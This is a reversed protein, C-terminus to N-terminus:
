TTAQATPGILLAGNEVRAVIERGAMAGTFKVTVSDNSGEFRVTVTGDDNYALKAKDPDLLATGDTSYRSISLPANTEVSDNGDGEVMWLTAVNGSTSDVKIKDNGAGGSALVERGTLNLVDNGEGGGGRVRRGTLNLVDDGAGGSAQAGRGTLHLVDNGDGGAALADWKATIRIVDDGDGGGILSTSDATIAIADDGDGGDLHSVRRASIAIADNGDGGDLRFVSGSTSIAIADNGDGGGVRDVEGRAVIAIADNGDGGTALDVGGNSVIAITDNGDGGDVHSVTPDFDAGPRGSARGLVSINDNGKGGYAGLVKNGAVQVSDDGGAAEVAITDDSASIVSLALNGTGSTRVQTINEVEYGRDFRFREVEMGLADGSSVLSAKLGEAEVLIRMIASVAASPSNKLGPLLPNKGAAASAQMRDQSNVQQLLKVSVSTYSISPAHIKLM